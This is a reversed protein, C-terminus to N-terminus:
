AEVFNVTEILREQGQRDVMRLAGAGGRGRELQCRHGNFEPEGSSLVRQVDFAFFTEPYDRRWRRFPILEQYVKKLSVPGRVRLGHRGSQEQNLREWMRYLAGLFEELNFPSRELRDREAEIAATLASPRLTGFRTRNVVVSLTEPDVRVPFPFVFYNPFHGELRISAAECATAFDEQFGSGLYARYDFANLSQQVAGLPDDLKLGELERLAAEITRMDGKQAAAPLRHALTNVRRATKALQESPPAVVEELYQEFESAM